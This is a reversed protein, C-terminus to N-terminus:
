EEKVEIGIVYYRPLKGIMEANFNPDIENEGCFRLVKTREDYWGSGYLVLPISCNGSSPMADLRFPRSGYFYTNYHGEPYLKLRPRVTLVDPFDMMLVTTSDNLRRFVMTLSSFRSFYDDDADLGYEKRVAAQIDEPIDRMYQWTHGCNISYVRNPKENGKVYEDVYVSIKRDASNLGSLDFSYMEIDMARLATMIETQGPLKPAIRLSDESAAHTTTIGAVMFAVLALWHKRVM